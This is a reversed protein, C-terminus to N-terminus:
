RDTPSTRIALTITATGDLTSSEAHDTLGRIITWSLDSGATGDDSLPSVGQDELGGESPDAALRAELMDTDLAIDMRLMLASPARALLLNCAEAIAIRLDDVTDIPADTRGAVNAAVMRMIAVSGPEAPATVTIEGEYPTM